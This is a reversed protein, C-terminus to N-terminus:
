DKKKALAVGALSVVAVIALGSAIVSGCGGDDAPKETGASPKQTQAPTQPNTEVPTQPDTETPTIPDTDEPTIPDTDEPIIPDTETPTSEEPQWDTPPIDNPVFFIYNSAPDQFVGALPDRTVAVQSSIGGPEVGGYLNATANPYVNGDYRDDRAYIKGTIVADQYINATSNGEIGGAGGCQVQKTEGGYMNIIPNGYVVGAGATGGAYITQYNGSYVNIVPSGELGAEPNAAFGYLSVGIQSFNEGSIVRIGNGMTIEHGYAYINYAYDSETNEFTMNYFEVPGGLSIGTGAGPATRKLRADNIATVYVKGTHEPLVIQHGNADFRMDVSNEFDWSDLVTDGSICVIGGEDGLRAFAQYLTAVPDATSQGSNADDGITSNLYIVKLEASDAAFAFLSLAAIIMAITTFFAFLRKM